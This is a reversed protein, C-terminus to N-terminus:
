SSCDGVTPGMTIGHVGAKGERGGCELGSTSDDTKFMQQSRSLYHVTESTRMANLCIYYMDTSQHVKSALTTTREKLQKM